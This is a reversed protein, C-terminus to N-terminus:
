TYIKSVSTNAPNAGSAGVSSSNTFKRSSGGSEIQALASNNMKERKKILNMIENQAHVM